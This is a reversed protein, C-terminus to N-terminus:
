VMLVPEQFVYLDKGRLTIFGNRQFYSIAESVAERTTGSIDAIQQILLGWDYTVNVPTGDTM